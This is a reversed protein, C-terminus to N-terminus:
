FTAIPNFQFGTGGLVPPPAVTVLFDWRKRSACVEAAADLDMVDILPLGMAVIAILHIPRPVGPVGSPQADEVADNGLLAIDRKPLWPLVSADFGAASTAM